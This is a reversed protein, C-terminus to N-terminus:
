KKGLGRKLTDVSISEGSTKSIKHAAQVWSDKDLGQPYLDKFFKAAREQKRPRGVATEERQLFSDMYQTHKTARGKCFEEWPEGLLSRPVALTWGEVRRLKSAIKTLKRGDSTLREIAGVSSLYDFLRLDIQGALTEFFLSPRTQGDEKIKQKLTDIIKQEVVKQDAEEDTEYYEEVLANFEDNAQESLPECFNFDDRIEKPVVIADEGSMPSSSIDVYFTNYVLVKEDLHLVEGDPSCVFLQKACYDLVWYRILDDRRKTALAFLARTHELLYSEAEKYLDNEYADCFLASLPYYGIPTLM